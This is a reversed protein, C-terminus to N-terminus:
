AVRNLEYLKEFEEPSLDDLYYHMRKRNYLTEIYSFLADAATESDEYGSDPVEEDKLHSFFSEAVANDWPDGKRSMSQVMKYKNLRGRFDGSVFQRGGDSHFILGAPPRRTKVANDLAEIVLDDRMHNRFAWGVVKRSFLDIIVCLYWHGDGVNIYSIDSVWVENPRSTRFNRNLLNPAWLEGHRSDTTNIFHIKVKTKINHEKMLRRVRKCSTRVGKKRLEKVIKVSRYIGKFHKNVDKIKEVLEVDEADRKGPKRNKRNYYSSRVAGLVEAM